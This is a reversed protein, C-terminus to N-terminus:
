PPCVSGLAPLREGPRLPMGPAAHGGATYRSWRSNVFSGTTGRAVDREAREAGPSRPFFTSGRKEIGDGSLSNNGVTQALTAVLFVGCNNRGCAKARHDGDQGSPSPALPQPIRVSRNEARRGGTNSCERPNPAPDFLSVDATIVQGPIGPVMRLSASPEQCSPRTVVVRRAAGGFRQSCKKQSM